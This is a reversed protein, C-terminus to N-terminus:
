ESVGTRRALERRVTTLSERASRLADDAVTLDGDRALIDRGVRYREGAQVLADRAQGDRALGDLHLLEEAVGPLDAVLRDRRRRHAHRDQEAAVARRRREYWVGAGVAAATGLFVWGLVPTVSGQPDPTTPSPQNTTVGTRLEGIRRCVGNVEQQPTFPSSYLNLRDSGGGYLYMVSSRLIAPDPGAIDIWRGTIVMVIDDPFAAAVPGLLDVRPQGRPVAPLVAVRVTRDPGALSWAPASSVPTLAPDTWVQDARLGAIVTAVLASDAPEPTGMPPDAPEPIVADGARETARSVAFRLTQDVDQHALLREAESQSTPAVSFLSFGPEVGTVTILTLDERTAWLEVTDEADRAAKEDDASLYPLLLVRVASGALDARLADEDFEAPAGPLRVIVDTAFAAIVQDATWPWGTAEDVRGALM